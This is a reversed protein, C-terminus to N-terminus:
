ERSVQGRSLPSRSDLVSFFFVPNRSACSHRVFSRSHTLDVELRGTIEFGEGQLRPYNTQGLAAYINEGSRHGQEVFLFYPQNLLVELVENQRVNHKTALKDIVKDLWIIGKIKLQGDGQSGSFFPVSKNKLIL